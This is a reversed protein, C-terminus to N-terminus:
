KGDCDCGANAEETPGSLSELYAIFEDVAEYGDDYIGTILLDDAYTYGSSSCKKAPTFDTTFAFRYKGGQKFANFFAKTSISRDEKYYFVVRRRNAYNHNDGHSGYIVRTEFSWVFKYGKHWWGIDRLRGELYAFADRAADKLCTHRRMRACYDPDPGCHDPPEICSPVGDIIICSPTKGPKVCSVGGGIVVDNGCGDVDVSTVSVPSGDGTTININTDAFAPVIFVCLSLALIVLFIRKM